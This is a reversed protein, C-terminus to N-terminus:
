TKTTHFIQSVMDGKQRDLQGTTTSSQNIMADLDGTVDLNSLISPGPSLNYHFNARITFLIGYDTYGLIRLVM